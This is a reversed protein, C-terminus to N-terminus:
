GPWRVVTEFVHVAPGTMFADGSGDWEVLLEGGPVFVRVPSVITGQAIAAAAAAVAGTGCAMTEGAGREYHKMRIEKAASDIVAVHVNIGRPFATDRQMAEGYRAIDVDDLAREFRVIHPNGVSVVAAGDSSTRAHRVSPAGMNVRVRYIEGREVITTYIRGAITQISCDDRRAGSAPNEGARLADLYRAICRVGNGCMEAESGDANLVRMTVDASASPGIVLVGDAGIGARRDCAFKAFDGPRPLPNARSDVVIFDNLAGHM